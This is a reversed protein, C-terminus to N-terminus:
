AKVWLRDNSDWIRRNKKYPVHGNAKDRATKGPRAVGTEEICFDHITPLDGLKARQHDSMFKKLTSKNKM